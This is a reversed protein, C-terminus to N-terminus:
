DVNSSAITAVGVASDNKVRGKRKRKAKERQRKWKKIEDYDVFTYRGVRRFNKLEKNVIARWITLRSVGIREAAQSLLMERMVADGQRSLM